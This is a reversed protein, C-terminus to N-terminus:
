VTVNTRMEGRLISLGNRFRTKVAITYTGSPLNPIQFHIESPKIGSYVDVRTENNPDDTSVFFIGLESDAPDFKLLCGRLVAIGGSSASLNTEESSGDTFLQPIPIQSAIQVKELKIKTPLEKLRSGSTARVNITHRSRDFNDKENEFVGSITARVKILPTIVRHGEKVFYEITQTLKEFYALAQPRTLGTGEAIMHTIVDNLDKVEPSSVLAICSNAKIAMGNRILLYKIM